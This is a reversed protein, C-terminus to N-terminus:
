GLLFGRWVKNELNGVLELYNLDSDLNGAISCRGPPMVEEDLNRISREMCTKKVMKVLPVYHHPRNRM